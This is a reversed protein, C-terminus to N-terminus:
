PSFSGMHRADKRMREVIAHEDKKQMSLRIFFCPEKLTKQKGGSSKQSARGQIFFLISAFKLLAPSYYFFDDGGKYPFSEICYSRMM